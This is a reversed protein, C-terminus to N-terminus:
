KSTLVILVKIVTFGSQRVKTGPKQLNFKMRLYFTREDDLDPPEDDIDMSTPNKQGYKSLQLNFQKRLQPKDNPHIFDKISLGVMNEQKLGLYNDVNESIYMITKKRDLLIVFGNIAELMMKGEEILTKDNPKDITLENNVTSVTKDIRPVVAPVLTNGIDECSSTFEEVSHKTTLDAMKVRIM